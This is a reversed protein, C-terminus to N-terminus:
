RIEDQQPERTDGHGHRRVHDRRVLAGADLVGHVPADMTEARQDDGVGLVVAPAQELLERDIRPAHGHDGVTLVAEEPAVLCRDRSLRRSALQAEIRVVLDREEEAVDTFVLPQVHQEVCPRGDRRRSGPRPEDHRTVGDPEIGGPAVRQLGRRRAHARDVPEAVDREGVDGTVEGGGVHEHQGIPM